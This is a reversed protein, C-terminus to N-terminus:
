FNRRLIGFVFIIVFNKPIGKCYSCGHSFRSEYYYIKIGEGVNSSALNWVAVCFNIRDWRAVICLWIVNILLSLKVEYFSCIAYWVQKNQLNHWIDSCGWLISLDNKIACGGLFFNYPWCWWMSNCLLFQFKSGITKQM